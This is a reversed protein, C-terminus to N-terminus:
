EWWGRHQGVAGAVAFLLVLAFPAMLIALDNM